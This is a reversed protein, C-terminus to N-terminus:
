QTLRDIGKRMDDITPHTYIQTSNLNSHGLLEQVVRAEMVRMCRTAFTHRLMHPTLKRGIAPPGYKICIDEVAKISLPKYFQSARPFIPLTNIDINFSQEKIYVKICDRLRQSLPIIRTKRNKSIEGRVHLTLNISGMSYLDAWVLKTLEGVRLGTDLMMLVILYDRIYNKYDRDSTEMWLLLKDVEEDSLAKSSATRTQAM